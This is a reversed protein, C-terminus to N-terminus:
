TNAWQRLLNHYVGTLRALEASEPVEHTLAQVARDLELLLSRQTDDRVLSQIWFFAAYRTGRTVPNVRHLSSGPYLVLHGAPLKVSHSGYSDEVVLEGGDYEDPDSFFLTASLDSRVRQSTGPVSFISNDIHNGYTGGGSYRNFRPPLVKLPLAASVFQPHAGLRQVIFDGIQLALPDDQLLQQNSKVKIAQHGATSRGDQWSAQEFAQRCEGVQEPTLVDAISLMM